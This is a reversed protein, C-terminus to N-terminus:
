LARDPLLRALLSFSKRGPSAAKGSSQPSESHKGSASGSQPKSVTAGSDDTSM